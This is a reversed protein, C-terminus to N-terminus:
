CVWCFTALLAITPLPWAQKWVLGPSTSGPLKWSSHRLLRRAPPTNRPDTPHSCSTLPDMAPRSCSTVNLPLKPLRQVQKWCQQDWHWGGNRSGKCSHPPCGPGAVEPWWHLQTYASKSASSSPTLCSNIRLQNCFEEPGAQGGMSHTM